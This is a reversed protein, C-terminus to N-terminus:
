DNERSRALRKKKGGRKAWAIGSAVAAQDKRCRQCRRHRDDIPMEEGCQACSKRASQLRAFLGLIHAAFAPAPARVM